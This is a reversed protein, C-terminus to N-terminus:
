VLMECDEGDTDGIDMDVVRRTCKDVLGRDWYGM